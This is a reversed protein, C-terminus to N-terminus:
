NNIERLSFLSGVDHITFPDFSFTGRERLPHISRSRHFQQWDRGVLFSIYKKSIYREEKGRGKGVADSINILFTISSHFYSRKESNKVIKRASLSSYIIQHHLHVSVRKVSPSSFSDFMSRTTARNPPVLRSAPKRCAAPYARYNIIPPSISAASRNAGRNSLLLLVPRLYGLHNLLTFRRRRRM